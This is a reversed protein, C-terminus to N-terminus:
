LLIETEAWRERHGYGLSANVALMAVNECANWTSLQYLEPRLQQLWQAMETKVLRALGKGRYAPLVGTDHQEGIEPWTDAVQVQTLAVLEGTADDAICVVYFTLRKAMADEETRRMRDVDYTDHEWKIDGGQPATNMVEQLRCYTEVWEDPCREQWRVATFGPVAFPELTAEPLVLRSRYEDLGFRAGIAKSFDVGGSDYRGGGLLSTRGDAAAAAKVADVLARGVGNRRDDPDVYVDTMVRHGNAGDWWWTEAAGLIRERADDWAVFVRYPRVDGPNRVRQTLYVLPPPPEDPWLSLYSAVACRHWAAIDADTATAADLLEVKVRRNYGNGAIL